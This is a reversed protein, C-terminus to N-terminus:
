QQGDRMERMIEDVPKGGLTGAVEAEFVLSIKTIQGLAAVIQVYHPAHIPQGDIFVCAIGPEPADMGGLVHPINLQVKNSKTGLTNDM